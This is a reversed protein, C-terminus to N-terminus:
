TVLIVFPFLQSFVVLILLAGRGRFRRRSFSYAALMSAAVALLTAISCVLLSNWIYTPFATNALLAQYGDLVIRSPLLRFSPTFLENEPRISTLAIWATPFILVLLLAFTFVVQSVDKTLQLARVQKM